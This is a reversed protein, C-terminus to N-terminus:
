PSVKWTHAQRTSRGHGRRWLPQHTQRAQTQFTGVCENRLELSKVSHRIVLSRARLLVRRQNPHWPDRYGSVRTKRGYRSCLDRLVAVQPVGIRQFGPLYKHGTGLCTQVPQWPWAGNFVDFTFMSVAHGHRKFTLLCPWAFVAIWSEFKDPAHGHCGNLTRTM